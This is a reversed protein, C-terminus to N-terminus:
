QIERNQTQRSTFQAVLEKGTRFGANWACVKTENHESM